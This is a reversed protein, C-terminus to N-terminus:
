PSFHLSLTAIPDKKAAVQAQVAVGEHSPLQSDNFDTTNVYSWRRVFRSRRLAVRRCFGAKNTATTM